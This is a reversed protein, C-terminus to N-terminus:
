LDGPLDAMLLRRQDDIESLVARDIPKRLGRLAREAARQGTRVSLGDKDIFTKYPMQFSGAPSVPM